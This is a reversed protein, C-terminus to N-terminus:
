IMHAALNCLTAPTVFVMTVKGNADVTFVEEEFIEEQSAQIDPIDSHWNTPDTSIKIFNDTINKPLIRTLKTSVNITIINVRNLIRSIDVDPM